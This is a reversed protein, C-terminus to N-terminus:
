PNTEDLKDETFVMKMTKEDKRTIIRGTKQM